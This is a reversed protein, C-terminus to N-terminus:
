NKVNEEHSPDIERFTFPSKKAINELSTLSCSLTVGTEGVEYEYEELLVKGNNALVHSRWLAYQDWCLEKARKTSHTVFVLEETVYTTRQFGFPLKRGFLTPFVEEHVKAVSGEPGGGTRLLPISLGLFNWAGRETEAVVRRQTERFPVTCSFERYTEALILANSDVLRYGGARLTFAGSVLLDGENVVDGIKVLPEGGYVELERIIGGCKAIVHSPGGNEANKPPLAREVLEATLRTGDAHFSVFVFQPFRVQFRLATERDTVESIKAGPRIGCEELMRGLQARTFSDSNTEITVGWVFFTSLYMLFIGVFIGLAMGIRKRYRYLLYFLGRETVEFPKEMSPYVARIVEKARETKRRGVCFVLGNEETIKLARFRIGLAHLRDM